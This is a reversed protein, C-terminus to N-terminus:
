FMAGLGAIFGSLKFDLENDPDEKVKYGVVRYGFRVVVHPTVRYRLQPYLEFVLDSDGGGGISFAPVLSMGQIKSAFLPLSPWLIVMPDLLDQSHRITGAGTVDLDSAIHAYRLGAALTFTQGEKWGKFVYGAALEAFLMDTDMQGALPVGDLKLADTSLEYGDIQGGLAFQKYVMKGALSGGAELHELLDGTSRDYDVDRGNIAGDGSLGAVWLSPVLEVQWDPKEAAAAVLTGALGLGAILGWGRRKDM